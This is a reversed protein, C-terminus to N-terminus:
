RHQIKQGVIWRIAKRHALHADTTIRTPKREVVQLLDRLFRRAAHKDRRESLMSDILIGERDIARYLHCWRGPVMTCIEDIYWSVGARGRRKAHLWDALLPGSRFEWDCITEHTVAYRRGLFLEAVDRFSLKYRLYWIVGLLVTEKDTESCLVLRCSSTVVIFRNKLFGESM